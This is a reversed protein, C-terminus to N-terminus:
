AAAKKSHQCRAQLQILCILCCDPPELPLHSQMIAGPLTQNCGKINTRSGSTQSGLGLGPLSQSIPVTQPLAPKMACPCRKTQWSHLSDTWYSSYM